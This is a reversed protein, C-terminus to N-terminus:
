KYDSIKSLLEASVFYPNNLDGIKEILVSEGDKELVKYQDNINFILGENSIGYSLVDYVLIDKQNKLTKIKRRTKKLIEEGVKYIAAGCGATILLFNKPGGVKKATTTMWQYLGLNSM